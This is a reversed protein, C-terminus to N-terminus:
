LSHPARVSKQPMRVGVKIAGGGKVAYSGNKNSTPTTKLKNFIAFRLRDCRNERASSSDCPFAASLARNGSPIRLIM